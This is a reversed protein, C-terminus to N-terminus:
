VRINQNTVKLFCVYSFLAPGDWLKRGGGKTTQNQFIFIFFFLGREWSGAPARKIEGLAALIPSYCVAPLVPLIQDLYYLPSGRATPFPPKEKKKM